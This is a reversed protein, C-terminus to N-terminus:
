FKGKAYEEDTVKELWKTDGKPSQTVIAVHVMKSGTTAGHWHEVGPTCKIVDGKHIHQISKGKEQYYGEGDTVLLVQGGPHIHWNTRAGAEFTVNAIICDLQDAPAVMPKIWVSGSFREAPAKDGIGFISEQNEITNKDQAVTVLDLFIFLIIAAVIKLISM